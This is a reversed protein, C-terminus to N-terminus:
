TILLYQEALLIYLGLQQFEGALLYFWGLLFASFMVVILAPFIRLVRRGHFDIFSFGGEDLSKFIISSILYGSIVFFISVGTYGGAVWEPFFHFMVVALIAIGRIATIDPRYNLHTPSDSTLFKRIYFLMVEFWPKSMLFIGKLLRLRGLDHSGKVTLDIALSKSNQIKYKTNQYILIFRLM